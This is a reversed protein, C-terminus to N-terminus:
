YELVYSSRKAGYLLSPAQAELSVRTSTHCDWSTKRFFFKFDLHLSLHFPVSSVVATRM